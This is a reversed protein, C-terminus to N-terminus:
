APLPQCGQCYALVPVQALCLVRYATSGPRAELPGGEAKVPMVILGSQSEAALAAIAEAPRGVEVRVSVAVEPPLGSALRDLRDRAEAVRADLQAQLPERWPALASVRTVIHVLLLPVSFSRAVAAASRAAGDSDVSLDLPAMVRGVNFVPLADTLEVMPLGSAPVALVPAPARRLVSQTVSGFFMKRYGGLGHTGMVVLDVRERRAFESIERSPDGVAVALRPAPAWSAHAPVVGAVLRQLESETEQRLYAADYAAAAAEVLLLENVSLVFLEARDRGALGIAARLAQRAHVSFDVPCLIARYPM